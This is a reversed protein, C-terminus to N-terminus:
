RLVKIKEWLTVILKDKEQHTLGKLEPLEAMMVDGPLDNKTPKSIVSRLSVQKPLDRKSRKIRYTIEITEDPITPMDEVATVGPITLLDHIGSGQPLHILFSADSNSGEAEAEARERISQTLEQWQRRILMRAHGKRKKEKDWELYSHSIDMLQVHLWQGKLHYALTLLQHRPKGKSQPKLVDAAYLRLVIHEAADKGGVLSKRLKSRKRQDTIHDPLGRSHINRSLWQDNLEGPLVGDLGLMKRFAQLVRALERNGAMTLSLLERVLFAKMKGTQDGGNVTLLRLSFLERETTQHRSSPLIKRVPSM